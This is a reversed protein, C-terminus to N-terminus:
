DNATDFSEEEQGIVKCVFPLRGKGDDLGFLFSKKSQRWGGVSDWGQGSYAGFKHGDATMALILIPGKNDCLDHMVDNSKGDRM